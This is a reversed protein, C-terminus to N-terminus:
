PGFQLGLARSLFVGAPLSVPARVFCIDPATGCSLTSGVIGAETGSAIFVFASIRHVTTGTGFTRTGQAWAGVPEVFLSVVLLLGLGISTRSM